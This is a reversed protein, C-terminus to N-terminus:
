VKSVGNGNTGLAFDHSSVLIQCKRKIEDECKM